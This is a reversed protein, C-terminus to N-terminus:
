SFPLESNGPNFLAGSFWIKEYFKLSFNKKTAKEQSSFALPLEIDAM